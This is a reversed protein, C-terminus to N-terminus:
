GGDVVRDDPNLTYNYLFKPDGEEGVESRQISEVHSDAFMVHCADKHRFYEDRWFDRFFGGYASDYQSLGALSDGNDDIAHEWSDQFVIMDNPFRIQGTPRLMAFKTPIVIGGRGVKFGNVIKWLSTKWDPNSADNLGPRVNNIGYTQYRQTDYIFQIDTSFYPYPDMLEFEPDEWVDLANDIYDDYAVGWYALPNTVDMKVGNLDFRAGNNKAESGFDKNDNRYIQMALDLSRMNVKCVIGRASDRASSISPLLIGTLLAIIAIVVLLEILTFGRGQGLTNRTCQTRM